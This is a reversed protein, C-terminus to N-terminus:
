GPLADTGRGPDGQDARNEVGPHGPALPEIGGASEAHRRHQDGHGEARAGEVQPAATVAGCRLGCPVGGLPGRSSGSGSRGTPGPRSARATARPAPAPSNEANRPSSVSLLTVTAGEPQRRARSGGEDARAVVLGPHWRHGADGGLGNPSGMFCAVVVRRRTRVSARSSDSTADSARTPEVAGTADAPTAAATGAVGVPIGVAM